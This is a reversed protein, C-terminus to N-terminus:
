ARAPDDDPPLAIGHGDVDVWRARDRALLRLGARPRRARRGARRAAHRHARGGGDAAADGVRRRGPERAVAAPGAPLRVAHARLRRAVPGLHRGAPADPRRDRVLQAVRRAPRAARHRLAARAGDRQAAVPVRRALPQAPLLRGLLGPRRRAGLHAQRLDRVAHPRRHDPDAVAPLRLGHRRAHRLAPLAAARRDVAHLRGGVVRREGRSELRGDPYALLMHAFVAAHVNAVLVGITFLWPDDASVLAGLFWAFGVAAM